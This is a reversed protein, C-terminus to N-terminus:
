EEILEKGNTLYIFQELEHLYKITTLIYILYDEDSDIELKWSTQTYLSSLTVDGKRLKISDPNSTEEQEFGLEQMLEATLPIPDLEDGHYPKNDDLFIWPNSVSKVEKREGDVSVHLGPRLTKIDIM